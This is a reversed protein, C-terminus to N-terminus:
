CGAKGFLDREVLFELGPLSAPGKQQETLRM